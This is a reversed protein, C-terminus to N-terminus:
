VVTINLSWKTKFSIFFLVYKIKCLVLVVLDFLFNVCATSNTASWLSDSGRSRAPFFCVGFYLPLTSPLLRHFCRISALHSSPLSTPSFKHRNHLLSEKIYIFKSKSWYWQESHVPLLPTVCSVRLISWLSQLEVPCVSIEGVVYINIESKMTHGGNWHRAKCDVHASLHIINM